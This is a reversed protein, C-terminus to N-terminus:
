KVLEIVRIGTLREVAPVHTLIAGDLRYASHIFRRLPRLAQVINVFPLSFARIAYNSFPRSFGDLEPTTLPREFPSVDPAQYPIWSRVRRVLASDRVPEQFIARGEPRLVRHIERSAAMLDLHHLIAIGLVVDFADRSFPLDHASGVVFEARGDLGNARLRRRAIEILSESIDVGVVRAGRRALLLANEGAGCGFDLVRRGRIDGLLSYAYELPYVTTRPPNLYRGVNREDALLSRDDTTSRRGAEHASRKIEAREWTTKEIRDMAAAQM